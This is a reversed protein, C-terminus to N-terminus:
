TGNLYGWCVSLFSGFMSGLQKAHGAVSDGAIIEQLGSAAISLTPLGLWDFFSFPVVHFLWLFFFYTLLFGYLKCFPSLSCFSPVVFLLVGLRVFMDYLMAM